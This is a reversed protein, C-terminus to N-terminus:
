EEIKPISLISGRRLHLPDDIGNEEAIARWRTPDRYHLFAISALSDGDRVTHSGLGPRARTTPNQPKSAGKASSKDMAKDAQILSIKAQARVPTGDARFLTYQVSLSDAVAKFSVTSGWVFTIMPPRGSNKGSGSGLSSQVEMAKFLQQTVDTVDLSDSDTSDFLLDLSLKRPQGGGFQASPLATGVVPDVKWQNQKQITYEKPNFWCDIPDDSGEIELSAQEFGTLPPLPM